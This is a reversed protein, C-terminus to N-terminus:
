ECRIASMPEIRAAHLAPLLSAVCAIVSLAAVSVLMVTVDHTSTNYLLAALARSALLAVGLGTLSGILAVMANERFVLMAVQGRQAGLAMRIGIESTRRATAYALTGYLGIGTVLLACVAFFVALMAMLREAAIAENIQEDLTILIPAPIEPALRATINRLADAVPGPKGDIRLVITYSPKESSEQTIPLYVLPPSTERVDGYVTNGVVAIVEYSKGSKPDPNKVERGIPNANQFLKKAAAENLIIKSGTSGNDDWRFDRGSRLPIRMAAFYDPAIDSVSMVQKQGGPVQYDETWLSGSLPTVGAFSVGKVGHIQAVEGAFNRYWELLANGKIPQKGMEMSALVVGHPDFGLGTQYMRLLSIGLLGAGVVLILTLAVESAMLIRGLLRHRHGSQANSSGQRVQEHLNGTSAQLAPVLGIILTCLFASLAAFTIVRIDISTDLTVRRYQNGVLSALAHSVFPAVAFGAATGLCALLMSEVLLQQVVRRRTAGVAMRTSIERERAAARAMLLSALNLCALLMVGGCLVLVVILPSRFLGRLMSYGKSGPTADLYMASVPHNNFSFKPDDIVEKMLAPSLTRLAANAQSLSMGDKMRVAIRFWWTHVGGATYNFPANVLPETAMAAYLNPRNTPDAGIFSKPMVGVVTFPVNDLMLKRGIVDPARNFWTQWFQDSIVVGIGSPGGGTQDDAPTLYRGLQPAIGLAQFFQGSVLAGDFSENKNGNRVQFPHATFAFINQFIDTRKELNRLIPSCFAYANGHDDPELHLIALREADPVPLPRLLLANVLSFVAANAGIGLTLTLLAVMTFGPSKRLVRAGFSLDRRLNELRRFQWLEVLREHWRSADGFAHRISTDLDPVQIGERKFKERLMARHFAIEDDMEREIRRRRMLAKMRLGIEHIWEAM